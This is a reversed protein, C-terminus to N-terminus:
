AGAQYRALAYGWERWWTAVTVLTENKLKTQEYHPPYMEALADCLGDAKAIDMGQDYATVFLRFIDSKYPDQGIYGYGVEEGAHGEIIRNLRDLIEERSFTNGM